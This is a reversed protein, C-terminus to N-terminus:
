QPSCDSPLALTEDVLDFVKEYGGASSVDFKYRHNVVIAPVGTIKYKALLQFNSDIAKKGNEEDSLAGLAEEQNAGISVLFDVAEAQSAFAKKDEHIRKFLEPTAKDLLGLVDAAQHVILFAGFQQNGLHTPVAKFKIKGANKDKWEKAHKELTYCHPCQYAFFEIVVPESCSIDSEVIEYPAVESPTGEVASSDTPKAEHEHGHQQESDNTATTETIEAEKPVEETVAPQCASLILTLLIIRSINLTTEM